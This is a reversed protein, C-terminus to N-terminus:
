GDYEDGSPWKCFGYGEKNGKKYQGHYVDGSEWKCHVYGHRKDNKFQGTYTSLDSKDYETGYGERKGDKWQGWYSNDYREVKCIGNLRGCHYEGFYKGGIENIIVGAGEKQGDANFYSKLTFDSGQARFELGRKISDLEIPLMWENGKINAIRLVTDAELKLGNYPTKAEECKRQM